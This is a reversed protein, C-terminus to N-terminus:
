SHFPLFCIFWSFSKFCFLYYNFFHSGFKFIFKLFLIFLSSIFFLIWNSIILTFLFIVFLFFPSFGFFFYILLNTHNKAHGARLGLFFSFSFFLWKRSFGSFWWVHARWPPLPRRSLDFLTASTGDCGSADTVHTMRLRRLSQHTIQVRWCNKQKKKNACFRFHGWSWDVIVFL